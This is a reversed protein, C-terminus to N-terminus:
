PVSPWLELHTHTHTRTHHTFAPHCLGSGEIDCTEAACCCAWGVTSICGLVHQSTIPPHPPSTNAVGVHKTRLSVRRSTCPSLLPPLSPLATALPFIKDPSQTPGLLQHGEPLPCQGSYWCQIKLGQKVLCVSCCSLHPFVPFHFGYDTNPM